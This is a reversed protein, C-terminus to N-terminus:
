MGAQELQVVLFTGHAVFVEYMTGQLGLVIGISDILFFLLSLKFLIQLCFM